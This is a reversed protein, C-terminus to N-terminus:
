ILPCIKKRATIECLQAIRRALLFISNGVGVEFRLYEGGPGLARPRYNGGGGGLKNFIPLNQKLCRGRQRYATGRDLKRRGSKAYLQLLEPNDQPAATPSQHLQQPKEPVLM